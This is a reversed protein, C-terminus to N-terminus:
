SNTHKVKNWLIKCYLIRDPPLPYRHLLFTVLVLSICINIQPIGFARSVQFFYLIRDLVELFKGKTPNLSMESGCVLVYMSVNNSLYPWKRSETVITNETWNTSPPSTRGAGRGREKLWLVHCDCFTFVYFRLIYLFMIFWLIDWPFWFLCMM